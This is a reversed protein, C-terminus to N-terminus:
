NMIFDNYDLFGNFIALANLTHNSPKVSKVVGFFRRLTNYSVEIGTDLYVIESLRKSCNYNEINFGVKKQTIIKLVKIM